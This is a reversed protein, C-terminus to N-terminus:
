RGRVTIIDPGEAAFQVVPSHGHTSARFPGPRYRDFGSTEWAHGHHDVVFAEIGSLEALWDPAGLGMALAATAYADTDALNPGVVTVSALDAAPAGTHPDFVHLGREATGSTAVAGDDVALVASLADRHHPHAVGVHWRRGPAPAGRTRIDGAANICHNAAGAAVLLDSARDVAWGKVLGSPDLRRHPNARLDFYGNTEAALEGCRELVFRVDDRCDELRVEGRDLRCIESDPRYTSFVADVEHLWAFVQELAENLAPAPLPDRVDVGIVMGMLHEVRRAGTTTM